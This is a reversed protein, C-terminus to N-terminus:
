VIVMIVIFIMIIVPIENAIRFFLHSAERHESAFGKYCKIYFVHLGILLFVLFIKAHVWGNHWDIIGPTLALLGGFFFTLIMAPNIIIKILRREMILFQNSMPSHPPTQAHYVFLRPLYFMGAM